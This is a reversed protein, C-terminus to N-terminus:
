SIKPRDADVAPPTPRTRPAPAPKFLTASLQAKREQLRNPDLEGAKYAGFITLAFFAAAETKDGVLLNGLTALTGLGIAGATIASETSVDKLSEPLYKRINM